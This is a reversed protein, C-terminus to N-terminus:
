GDADAVDIQREVIRTREFDFGDQFEVAARDNSGGRRVFLHELAHAAALDVHQDRSPQRRAM